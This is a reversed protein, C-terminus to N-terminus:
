KKNRYDRRFEEMKLLIESDRVAIIRFGVRRAFYTPKYRNNREDYRVFNKNDKRSKIFLNKLNAWPLYRFLDRCDDKSTVLLKLYKRDFHDKFGTILMIAVIQDNTKKIFCKEGNKLCDNFVQKAVITNNLYFRKNEKTIHFDSDRKECFYIFNKLDKSQM